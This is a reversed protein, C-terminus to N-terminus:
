SLSTRKFGTVTLGKIEGDLFQEVTLKNDRIFEQSLLTNEKFFKTLRGQAIKDAMDASKGEQIALEKGVEIEREITRADVGEKNLAIPNMAAVQMAVQRGAEAVNEGDKNLAVLTALQNGPHNYAVVADGKLLGYGTVELKEGIVGIQETIKDAVSLKGDFSLALLDEASAPQNEIAVKMLSEVLTKYGDNKAVFDTECNLAFVIGTKNDSTIQALVFGESAENGGRKAAIKQGKKRLIDVAAEFDGNAEVLANKCDMMGAGTQQRLKNVDSATIAM